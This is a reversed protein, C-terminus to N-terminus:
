CVASACPTRDEHEARSMHSMVAQATLLINGLRWVEAFRELGHHRGNVLARASQINHELLAEKLERERAHLFSALLQAAIVPENALDPNEVLQAGLGLAASYRQYQARGTLQIFGRGKFRAGDGFGSNGLDRRYDYLDFLHGGPSTNKADPLASRPVFDEAEARITALALLAMVKDTLEHHTLAQLVHPMYTQLNQVPTHPFLATVLSLTIYPIVSPLRIDSALGLAGLTRPGAIGDALLGTSYQFALVAAKTAPGFRGDIRGPSFGIVRLQEQLAKVDAGASGEYLAPMATEGRYVTCEESDQARCSAHPAQHQVM